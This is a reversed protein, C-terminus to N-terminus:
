AVDDRLTEAIVAYDPQEIRDRDPDGGGQPHWIYASGFGTLRCLAIVAEPFLPNRHTPDLWFSKMAQPAHPNVTEVVLIGGPRLAALAGRLVALLEAYSLHEIVQAAFVAGLSGAETAALYGAADAVHLGELGKKRCREVMAPDIDIGTAEIGRDRLLELMEGRGCGIDLVPAHDSLLPVYALQRRRILEEGGRFFDEFGVYLDAGADTGAGRFGVVEGGLGADFRELTFAESGYLAVTDPVRRPLDSITGQSGHREEDLRASIREIRRAAEEGRDSSVQLWQRMGGLEGDVKTLWARIGGLDGDVASLWNRMGGLEERIATVTARVDDLASQSQAVAARQERTLALLRRDLDRV